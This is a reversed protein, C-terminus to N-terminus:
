NRHYKEYDRWTILQDKELLGESLPAKLTLKFDDKERIRLVVENNRLVHNKSDIYHNMQKSKRYKELGLYTVIKDYQEKSLLVKAEIEITSNM